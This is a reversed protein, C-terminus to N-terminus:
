APQGSAGEALYDEMFGAIERSNVLLEQLGSAALASGVVRQLELSTQWTAAALYPELQRLLEYNSAIDLRPLKAELSAPPAGTRELVRSVYTVRHFVRWCGANASPQRVQRLAAASPDSEQLWMPDVVREFFDEHNRVHPELYFTMFRYADVKGPEKRDSASGDPDRRYIDREVKDVSVDISFSRTTDKTRTKV